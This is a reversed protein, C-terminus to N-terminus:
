HVANDATRETDDPACTEHHPRFPRARWVAEQRCLLSTPDSASPLLRAVVKEMRMGQSGKVLVLDGERVMAVACAAAADPTDVHVVRDDGWGRERLAQAALRMHSGVFLAIDIGNERVDDAVARHSSACVDGLELMDGVIAIRRGTASLTGVTALAARMSAPSANYTDDIIRVGRAGDLLRMRGPTPVFDAIRAAADVVNIHLWDAVGLAAVAAPISHLACIRHLRVPIVKGDYNLKFSVGGAACRAGDGCLGGDTVRYYADDGAGYTRVTVSPDPRPAVHVYRDDANLLAMGNKKVFRVMEYKERAIADTSTFFARHASAIVTIVAVDPQVIRMLYRMDGPHDVGCEVIVVRPYTRACLTRAWRWSVACMDGVGRVPQRAGIITLPVGIENNFNKAPVRVDMSAGLVHAIMDRTTTKGVSGTMAVVIPHHRWLVTQAMVKLLWRVGRM